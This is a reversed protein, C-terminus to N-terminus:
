FTSSRLYITAILPLDPNKKQTLFGHVEALQIHINLDLQRCSSNSAWSASAHPSQRPHLEKEKQVQLPSPWISGGTFHSLWFPLNFLPPTHTHVASASVNSEQTKTKVRLRPSNSFSLKGWLLLNVTFILGAYAPDSVKRFVLQTLDTKYDSSCTRWLLFNALAELQPSQLVLSNATALNPPAKPGSPIEGAGAWNTHLLRTKYECTWSIVLCLMYEWCACVRGYMHHLWGAMHVLVLVPTGKSCGGLCLCSLVQAFRVVTHVTPESSNRGVPQKHTACVCLVPKQVTKSVTLGTVPGSEPRWNNTGPGAFWWTQLRKSWYSVHLSRNSVPSVMMISALMWACPSVTSVTWADTEKLRREMQKKWAQEEETRSGDRKRGKVTGRFIRDYTNRVTGLEWLWGM